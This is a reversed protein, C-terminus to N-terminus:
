RFGRRVQGVVAGCGCAAREGPDAYLLFGARLEFQATGTLQGTENYLTTGTNSPIATILDSVQRAGSQLIQAQDVVQVAVTSNLDAGRVNSGTVVVEDLPKSAGSDDPAASDPTPGAADLAPGAIATAMSFSALAALIRGMHLKLKVRAM